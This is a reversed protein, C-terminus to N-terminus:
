SPGIIPYATRYLANPGPVLTAGRAPVIQDKPMGVQGLGDAIRVSRPGAGDVHLGKLFDAAGGDDLWQGQAQGTSRARDTLSRTNKAGAGHESFTHGFTPRSKPSWNPGCDANHVLGPTDGALVYYTHVGDVTLNYVTRVQKWTRTAVVTARARSRRRSSTARASRMETMYAAQIPLKEHVTSSVQRGLDDYTAATRTGTPDAV